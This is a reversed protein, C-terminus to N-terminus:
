TESNQQAAPMSPVAAGAPLDTSVCVVHAKESGGEDSSEPQIIVVLVDVVRNSEATVGASGGVIVAQTPGVARRKGSAEVEEESNRPPESAHAILCVAHLRLSMRTSQAPLAYHIQPVPKADLAM